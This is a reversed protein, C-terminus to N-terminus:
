CLHSPTALTVLSKSPRFRSVLKLSDENLEPIKKELDVARTTAVEVEDHIMRSRPAKKKKKLLLSM